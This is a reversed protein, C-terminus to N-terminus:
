SEPNETVAEDPTEENAVARCLVQAEPCLTELYQSADEVGQATITGRRIHFKIAHYHRPAVIQLEPVTFRPGATTKMALDSGPFIENIYKISQYLTEDTLDNGSVKWQAATYTKPAEPQEESDSSSADSIRFYPELGELEQPTMPVSKAMFDAKFRAVEAERRQRATQFPSGGQAAFQRCAETRSRTRRDSLPSSGPTLLGTLRRRSSPTGPTAYPHYRDRRPTGLSRTPTM